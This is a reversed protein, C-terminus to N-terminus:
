YAVIIEGVTPKAARIVPDTSAFEQDSGAASLAGAPAKPDPKFQVGVKCGDPLTALAGGNWDSVIAMGDKEFGMLKFPKGNLKELAALPLGLHVGKQASWTSQGGIVIMRTGSRQVDDDWLVELRRKPDNPFLVSAMLTSGDDGSVEAYDVNHVGYSQALKLHGSSKAFAGSCAVVRGSEAPKPPPPPKAVAVPAPPNDDPEANPNPQVAPPKAAPKAKPKPKVPPPPAVIQSPLIQEDDRLYPQQLGPSARPGTQASAATPLLAAGAAPLLAAAAALLVCLGYKM